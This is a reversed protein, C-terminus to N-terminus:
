DRLLAAIAVTNVIDDVSCGRSLDNFPKALGQSVPGTATAGGLRETLKYGINGADLDPFVLVNAQGAIESEPAKRKGIAPLIAADLQLEGDIKLEPAEKRVIDLATLVKDVDEHQASGKTSFSLMAVRPDEGVLKQMTQACSVAISALQEATPNPIVACDGFVFSKDREGNFEPMTMIFSSSITNCGPALGICHISARVVDGTTNVAGAVAADVDDHHVMMAGFYLPNMMTTAADTESLGKAKRKEYLASAYRQHDPSHAPNVIDVKGLNLNYEDALPKIEDPDGLLIIKAIGETTLKRAAQIMRPETGEPLAVTRKAAKARDRIKSVANM